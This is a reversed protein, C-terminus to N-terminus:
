EDVSQQRGQDQQTLKLDDCFRMFDDSEDSFASVGGSIKSQNNNKNYRSKMKHPQMDLLNISPSMDDPDSIEQKKLFNDANRSQAAGNKNPVTLLVM